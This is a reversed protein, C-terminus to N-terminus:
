EDCFDEEQYDRLDRDRCETSCYLARGLPYVRERAAITCACATCHTDRGKFVFSTQDLSDLQM